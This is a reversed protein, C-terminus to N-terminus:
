KSSTENNAGQQKEKEKQMRLEDLKEDVLAINAEVVLLKEQMMKEYDEDSLVSM